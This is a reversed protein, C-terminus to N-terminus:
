RPHKPLLSRRCATGCHIYDKRCHTHQLKKQRNAISFGCRRPCRHTHNACASTTKRAGDHFPMWPFSIAQSEVKGIETDAGTNNFHFDSKPITLQVTVGQATTSVLEIERRTVTDERTATRLRQNRSTTPAAGATGYAHIRNLVPLSGTDLCLLLTILLLTPLRLHAAIRIKSIQM